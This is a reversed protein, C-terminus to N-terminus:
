ETSHTDPHPHCPAPCPLEGQLSVALHQIGPLSPTSDCELPCWLSAPGAVHSDPVGVHLHPLWLGSLGRGALWVLPGRPRPRPGRVALETGKGPGQRRSSWGREIMHPALTQPCRPVPHVIWQSGQSVAPSCVPCSAAPPLTLAM